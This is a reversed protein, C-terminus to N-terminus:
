ELTYKEPYIYELIGVHHADQDSDCNSVIITVERQDCKAVSRYAVIPPM